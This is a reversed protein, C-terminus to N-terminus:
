RLMVLTRRFVEEGIAIRVFYVGSALLKGRDDRGDWDIRLRGGEFNRVQIRRVVRGAADFISIQVQPMSAMSGINSGKWCSGHFDLEITTSSSFPNPVNSLRVEPVVKGEETSALEETAMAYYFERAAECEHYFRERAEYNPWTAKENALSVLSDIWEVFFAADERVALRKSRLGFYIPSTHAFLSSGYTNWGVSEGKVRAAVWCSEIIDLAFSTDVSCSAPSLEICIARKGNKVIEISDIPHASRVSIEGELRRGPPELEVVDGPRSDGLKFETVLPGNTVFTRGEAFGQLWSDYDISEKGINVYVRYGGLPPSEIINITADTGASAPVRFGCNLLRYWLDTEIGRHLLNSYSMVDFADLMGRFAVIPIERAFGSGPWNEVQDFDLTTIPHACVALGGKRHCSEIADLALPCWAPSFPYILERLGLFGFHGSSSSRWEESMFVTCEGGACIIPQGSFYYENDLCNVVALGEATGMLCAHSPSLIRSGGQHNIHVHSDGSFWGLSSADIVRSLRVTLATDASVFFTDIRDQYEFGRSSYILVIGPPVTVTFSGETYFHAGYFTYCGSDLPSRGFGFMDRVRMRAAIPQSSASDVVTCTLVVAEARIASLLFLYPLFIRM